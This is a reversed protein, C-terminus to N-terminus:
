GGGETVAVVRRWLWSMEKSQNPLVELSFSLPRQLNSHGAESRLHSGNEKLYKRSLNNERAM